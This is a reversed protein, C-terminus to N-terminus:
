ESRPYPSFKKAIQEVGEILEEETMQEKSKPAFMMRFARYNIGDVYADSHSPTEALRSDGVSELITVVMYPTIEMNLKLSAIKAARQMNLEIDGYIKGRQAILQGAHTLIDYPTM